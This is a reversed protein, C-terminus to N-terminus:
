AAQGSRVPLPTLRYPCQLAAHCLGDAGPLSLHWAEQFRAGLVSAVAAVISPLPAAGLRGSAAGRQAALAATLEPTLVARLLSQLAESAALRTGDQEAGLQLAGAAHPLDHCRTNRM